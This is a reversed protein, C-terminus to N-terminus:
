LSSRDPLPRLRRAHGIPLMRSHGLEQARRPDSLEVVGRAGAVVEDPEVPREDQLLDHLAARSEGVHSVLDPDFTASCAHDVDALVVVLRIVVLRGVDDERFSTAV